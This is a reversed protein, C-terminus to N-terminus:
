SKIASTSIGLVKISRATGKSERVEIRYGEKLGKLQTKTARIKSEKGTKDDKVTVTGGEISVVEGVIANGAKAVGVNKTAGLAVTSFVLVFVLSLAILRRM